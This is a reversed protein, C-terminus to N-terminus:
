MYRITTSDNEVALEIESGLIFPVNNQIHGAPFHFAVPYNYSEVASHVIHEASKGFSRKKDKMETLGGVVLGKLQELKGSLRFNNLMRDLHYLQEGVDEIFLLKDAAIIEYPTSQLSYLISLNGGVLTGKSTGIRNLSHSRFSVSNLTGQLLDNLQYLNMNFAPNSFNVPMQSHMSPVGLYCNLLSHFVTIDSFGVIWKPNKRFASLDIKDAIRISGYGGRACFIAKVNNDNFAAQMDELREQDEGAFQHHVSRVHKGLSIKYDLRQLAQITKDIYDGEVASAPSVIRIEDGPSLFDPKSRTSM